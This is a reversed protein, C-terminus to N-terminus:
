LNRLDIDTALTISGTSLVEPTRALTIRISAMQTTPASAVCDPADYCFPTTTTVHDTLEAATGGCSSTFAFNVCITRRFSSGSIDFIERQAVGGVLTQIDISSRTSTSKVATAQRTDKTFRTMAERLTILADRRAQQARETKTGTDLMALAAFLIVAFLASAIMMEVLTFGSDERVWRCTPRRVRKV